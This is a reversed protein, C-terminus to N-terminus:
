TLATFQETVQTADMPKWAILWRNHDSTRNDHLFRRWWANKVIQVYYDLDDLLGICTRELEESHTEVLLRVDGESLMRRAGRLVKDEPGDVDVKLFCPYSVIDRLPDLTVHNDDDVDAVFDDYISIDPHCDPIRNLAISREIDQHFREAPEFALIRSAATKALGYATMLGRNAGVDLFTDIEQSLRQTHRYHEREWLGLYIQFDTQLNLSAKLGRLLGFQITRVTEGEPLTYSKLFSLPRMSM